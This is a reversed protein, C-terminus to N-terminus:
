ITGTRKRSPVSTRIQASRHDGIDVLHGKRRASRAPEVIHKVNHKLMFSLYSQRM